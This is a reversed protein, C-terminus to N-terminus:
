RRRSRRRPISRKGVSPSGADPDRENNAEAESGGAIATTEPGAHRARYDALIAEDDASLRDDPSAPPPDDNYRAALTMILNLARPDGKFGKEFLKLLSGVQMSVRKKRGGETVVVPMQLAERVDSTLNRRRRPRGKPNGSQGPKFRTHKPPKGRGVAYTSSGNKVKKM